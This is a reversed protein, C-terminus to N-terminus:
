AQRHHWPPDATPPTPLLHASEHQQTHRPPNAPSHPPMGDETPNIGDTGSFHWDQSSAYM